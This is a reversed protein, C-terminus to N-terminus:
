KHLIQIATIVKNHCITWLLSKYCNDFFLSNYISILNCDMTFAVDKTSLCLGTVSRITSGIYHSSFAWWRSTNSMCARPMDSQDIHMIYHMCTYPPYEACVEANWLNWCLWLLPCLTQSLNVMQQSWWKPPISAVFDHKAIQKLVAFICKPYWM